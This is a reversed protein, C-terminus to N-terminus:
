IEPYARTKAIHNKKREAKREGDVSMSRAKKEM